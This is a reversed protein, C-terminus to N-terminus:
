NIYTDTMVQHPPALASTNVTPSALGPKTVSLPKCDPNVAWSPFNDPVSQGSASSPVRPKSKFMGKKGANSSSYRKDAKKM